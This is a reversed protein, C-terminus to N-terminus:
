ASRRLIALVWRWAAVVRWSLTVAIRGRLDEGCATSEDSVARISISLEARDRALEERLNALELRLTALQRQMADLDRERHADVDDIRDELQDDRTRAIALVESDGTSLKRGGFRQVSRLASM